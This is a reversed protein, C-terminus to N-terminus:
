KWRGFGDGLDKWTENKRDRVRRWKRVVGEREISRIALIVAVEERKIYFVYQNNKDLNM